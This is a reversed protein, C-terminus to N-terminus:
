KFTLAHIEVSSRKCAFWVADALSFPLRLMPGEQFLHFVLLFHYVSALMQMKGTGYHLLCIIAIIRPTCEYTSCDIVSVLLYQRPLACGHGAVRHKKM